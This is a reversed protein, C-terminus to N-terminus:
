PLGILEHLFELPGGDSFRATALWRHGVEHALVSLTTEERLIQASPDASYKLISDMLVVSELGSASGYAVGSNAPGSGIGSISNRVTVEFAFAGESRPIFSRNSYVILQQYDDGFKSYFARGVATLDIDTEARFSEGVSRSFAVGAAQSLDTTQLGEISGGAAIGVAGESIGGLPHPICAIRATALGFSNIVHNTLDLFATTTVVM